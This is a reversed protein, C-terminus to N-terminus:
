RARTAPPTPAIAAPVEQGLTLTAEKTITQGVTVGGGGDGDGGGGCAALFFVAMCGVVLRAFRNKSTM